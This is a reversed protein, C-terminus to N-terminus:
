LGIDSLLVRGNALNEAMVRDRAEQYAAELKAKNLNEEQQYLYGGIAMRVLESFNLHGGGLQELREADQTDLWLHYRAM